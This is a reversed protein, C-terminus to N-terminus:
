RSRRLSGKRSGSVVWVLYEIENNCYRIKPIKNEGCLWPPCPSYKKENTRLYFPCVFVMLGEPLLHRHALM